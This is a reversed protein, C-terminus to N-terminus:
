PPPSALRWKCCRPPCAADAAASAQDTARVGQILSVYGDPPDAAPPVTTRTVDAPATSDIWDRLSVLDAPRDPINSPDPPPPAATAHANPDNPGTAARPPPANVSTSHTTGAPSGLPDAAPTRIKECLDTFRGPDGRAGFDPTM